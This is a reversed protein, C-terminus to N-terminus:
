TMFISSKVSLLASSISAMHSFTRPANPLPSPSCGNLHTRTTASCGVTLLACSSAVCRGSYCGSGGVRTHIHTRVCYWLSTASLRTPLTMPCSSHASSCSRALFHHPCARRTHERCTTRPPRKPRDPTPVEAPAPSPIALAASAFSFAILPAIFLALFYSTSYAPNQMQLPAMCRELGAAWVKSRQWHPHMQTGPHLSVHRLCSHTLSPHPQRVPVLAAGTTKGKHWGGETDEAPCLLLLLLLVRLEFM